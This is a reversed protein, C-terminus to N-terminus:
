SQNLHPRICLGGDGIPHHEVAKGWGNKEILLDRHSLPWNLWRSKLTAKSEVCNCGSRAWLPEMVNAMQDGVDGGAWDCLERM